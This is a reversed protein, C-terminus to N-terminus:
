PVNCISFSLKSTWRLTPSKKGGPETVGTDFHPRSDGHHRHSPGRAACSPRRAWKRILFRPAYYYKHFNTEHIWAFCVAVVATIAKREWSRHSASRPRLTKVPGTRWWQNDALQPKIIWYIACLTQLCAAAASSFLTASKATSGFM